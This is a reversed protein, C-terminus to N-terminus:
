RTSVTLGGLFDRVAANFAAPQEQNSVHGAGPIVVLRAGPIAESLFRGTELPVVADRDGHIVLTPANIEGLLPTLDTAGLALAAARYGAPRVEAMIDIIEALLPSPAGPSLLNPARQEAMGRAGLRELSELRERVRDSHAPEHLAGGGPNTDALILSRVRRPHRHYVLQAVVGGLSVGLVHAREIGLEALLEAACDALDELSFPAEPDSSRGYGPADWAIVDFGSSLEVLQHRFSRSNSGIGHLLLLAPGSGAREYHLSVHKGSM